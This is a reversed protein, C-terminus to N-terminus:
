TLAVLLMIWLSLIAGCTLAYPGNWRLGVHSPSVKGFAGILLVSATFPSTAGSIAWGSTIACVLIAPDIGM